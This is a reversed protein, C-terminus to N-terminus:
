CENAVIDRVGQAVRKPDSTVAGRAVDLKQDFQMAATPLAPDNAVRAARPTAAEQLEEAVITAVASQSPIIAKPQLLQRFAPRLVTFILIIVAIGGLIMRLLDRARPDQWIPTSDGDGMQADRAFPANVVSVVDGRANDFGIAQQVLMQIRQQEGPTLARLKPKGDKAPGAPVNDVLVAATVRRIKGPAQRTHTLTRDVEYNRVENRTGQAGAPIAPKGAGNQAAANGAVNPTNSASGPVGQAPAGAANAAAM